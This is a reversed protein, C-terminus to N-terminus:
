AGWSSAGVPLARGGSAAEGVRRYGRHSRRLRPSGGTVWLHGVRPATPTSGLAEPNKASAGSVASARPGPRNPTCRHNEGCDDTGRCVTPCWALAAFESNSSQLAQSPQRTPAGLKRRVDGGCPRKMYGGVSAWPPARGPPNGHRGDCGAFGM